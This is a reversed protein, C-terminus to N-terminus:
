NDLTPCIRKKQCNILRERLLNLQNLTLGLGKDFPGQGKQSIIMEKSNLFHRKSFKIKTKELPRFYVDEGNRMYTFFRKLQRRAKAAAAELNKWCKVEATMVVNGNTKSYVVIDLEGLIRKSNHYELGVLIKYQEPLYSKQLRLRAVQECIAGFSRYNAPIKKLQNFDSQPNSKANSSFLILLFVVLHYKARFM